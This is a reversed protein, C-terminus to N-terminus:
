HKAAVIWAIIEEKRPIKGASKVKGNVVVAPTTFVGYEAIKRFDTVHEIVAETGAERAAERALKEVQNCKACGSGLIKIDM